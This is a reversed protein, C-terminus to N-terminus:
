SREMAQALAERDDVDVRLEGVEFTPLVLDPISQDGLALLHTSLAQEAISSM